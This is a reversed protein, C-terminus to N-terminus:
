LEFRKKGTWRLIDTRSWSDSEAAKQLEEERIGSVAQGLEKLISETYM